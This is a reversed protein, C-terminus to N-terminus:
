KNVREKKKLHTKVRLFDFLLWHESFPLPIMKICDTSFRTTQQSPFTHNVRLSKPLFHSKLFYATDEPVCVLM